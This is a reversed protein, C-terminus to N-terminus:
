GKMSKELQKLVFILDSARCEKHSCVIAGDQETFVSDRSLVPEGCYRCTRTYTVSPM